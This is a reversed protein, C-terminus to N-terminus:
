GSLLKRFNFIIVSMICNEEELRRYSAFLRRLVGKEGETNTIGEINSDTEYGYLVPL